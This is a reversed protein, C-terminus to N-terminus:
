VKENMEEVAASDEGKESVINRETEEAVTLAFEEEEVNMADTIHNQVYASLPILLSEIIIGYLVALIAVALNPGIASPEDLGRLILVISIMAAFGAGCLVLRQLLRVAELTKKMQVLSCQKKGMQFAMLFDNGMGSAVLVPVTFLLLIALSPLDIFNSVTSLMETGGSILVIVCYTLLIMCGEFLIIFGSTKRKM